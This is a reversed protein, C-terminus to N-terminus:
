VEENPHVPLVFSAKTYDPHLLLGAAEDPSLNHEKVLAVCAEMM